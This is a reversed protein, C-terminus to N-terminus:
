IKNCKPTKWVLKLSRCVTYDSQLGLSMPQCYMIVNKNPNWLCRFDCQPFIISLTWLILNLLHSIPMHKCPLIAKGKALYKQTTKIYRELQWSPSFTYQKCFLFLIYKIYKVYIIHTYYSIHLFQKLISFKSRM